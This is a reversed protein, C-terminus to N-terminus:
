WLFTTNSRMLVFLTECRHLLSVRAGCSKVLCWYIVCLVPFIPMIRWCFTCNRYLQGCRCSRVIDCYRFAYDHNTVIRYEMFIVTGSNLPTVKTEAACFDRDLVCYCLRPIHATLQTSSLDRESLKAHFSLVNVHDTYRCFTPALHDCASLLTIRRGLHVACIFAFHLVGQMIWGHWAELVRFYKRAFKTIQNQSESQILFTPYIAGRVNFLLWIVPRSTSAGLNWSLWCM